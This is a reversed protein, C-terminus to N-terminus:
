HPTSYIPSLFQLHFPFPLPPPSSPLMYITAIVVYICLFYICLVLLFYKWSLFVKEDRPFGNVLLSSYKVFVFCCIENAINGQICTNPVCLFSIDNTNEKEIRKDTPIKLIEPDLIWPASYTSKREVPRGTRVAESAATLVGSSCNQNNFFVNLWIYYHSVIVHILLYNMFFIWAYRM